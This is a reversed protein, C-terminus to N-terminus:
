PRLDSDNQAVFILALLLTTYFRFAAQQGNWTPSQWMAFWEGGVVMFGIFWLLFGLTAGLFFVRKARNFSVAEARLYRAMVFGSFVLLLGAAAEAFIISQYAFKWLIPNTVSRYMLMNNEFTTDMSMVHKIFNYNSNYDIINNISCIICFLGTSLAMMIKSLRIEIM